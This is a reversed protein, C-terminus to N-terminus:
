LDKITRVKKLIGGTHTIHSTEIFFKLRPIEPDKKRHSKVKVSISRSSSSSSSKIIIMLLEKNQYLSALTIRSM